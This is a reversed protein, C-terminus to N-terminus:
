RTCHHFWNWHCHWMSVSNSHHQHNKQDCHLLPYHLTCLSFDLLSHRPEQQAVGWWRQWSPPGLGTDPSSCMGQVLHLPGQLHAPPLLTDAWCWKHCQPPRWSHPCSRQTQFGTLDKRTLRRSTSFTKKTITQTKKGRRTGTGWSHAHNLPHM